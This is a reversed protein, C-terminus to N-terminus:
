GILSAVMGQGPQTASALANSVLAGARDGVIASVQTVLDRELVARDIWFGLFGVLLILLPALSLMGYFSVSASMRMGQADNWLQAARWLPYAPRLANRLWFPVRDSWSPM